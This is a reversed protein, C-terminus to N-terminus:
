NQRGDFNRKIELLIAIAALILICSLNLDYILSLPVEFGFLQTSKWGKHFVIENIILHFTLVLIIILIQIGVRLYISNKIM